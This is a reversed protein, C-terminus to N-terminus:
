SAMIAVHVRQCKVDQGNDKNKEGCIIGIDTRNRKRKRLDDQGDAM